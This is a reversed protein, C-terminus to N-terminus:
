SAEEPIYGLRVRDLVTNRFYEQSDPATEV